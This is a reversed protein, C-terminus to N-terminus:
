RAKRRSRTGSDAAASSRAVAPRVDARHRRRARLCCDERPERGRAALVLGRASDRDREERVRLDRDGVRDALVM